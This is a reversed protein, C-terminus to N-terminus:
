RMQEISIGVSAYSSPVSIIAVGSAAYAKRSGAGVTDLDLQHTLDPTFALSLGTTKGDDASALNTVVQTDFGTEQAVFLRQVRRYVGNGAANPNATISLRWTNAAGVFPIKVCLRGGESVVPFPKRVKDYVVSVVGQANFLPVGVPPEVQLEVSTTPQTNSIDCVPVNATLGSITGGRVNLVSRTTGTVEFPAFGIGQIDAEEVTLSMNNVRCGKASNGVTDTDSFSAQRLRLLGIQVSNSIGTENTIAWGNYNRADLEAITLDCATSRLRVVGVFTAYQINHKSVLSGIKAGRVTINDTTTVTAIKTYNAQLNTVRTNNSNGTYIVPNNCLFTYLNDVTVNQCVGLELGYGTSDECFIDGIIGDGSGGTIVVGKNAQIWLTGVNFGPIGTIDVATNSNQPNLYLMHLSPAPDRVYAGETVKTALTAPDIVRGLSVLPLKNAADATAGLIKIRAVGIGDAFVSCGKPVCFGNSLNFDGAPVYVSRSRKKARFANWATEMSLTAKRFADRNKIAQAATDTTPVAGFWCVNVAGSYQRKYRNGNADILCTGDDDLTTTDATDRIFLGHAEDFVNERGLLQVRTAPGTYERLDSYLGHTETVNGSQDIFGPTTTPNTDAVVAQPFPGTGSYAKGTAKRLLVDKPGTLIGGTEFSTPLLYLGAAAYSRRLAEGAQIVVMQSVQDAAEAYQRSLLAWGEADAVLDQNIQSIANAIDIAEQAKAQADRSTALAESVQTVSTEISSGFTDFRDLMEAAVFVAQKANRDLSKATMSVGDTFQVLPLDKPTDRYILVHSGVPVVQSVRVRSETLFVVGLAEGAESLAKVHSKDLYGGAFNIDFTDGGTGNFYQMTKYNQEVLLTSFWGSFANM